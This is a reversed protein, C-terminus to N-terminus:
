CLIYSWFAANKFANTALSTVKNHSLDLNYLFTRGNRWFTTSVNAIGTFANARLDIWGGREFQDHPQSANGFAFPIRELLLEFSFDGEFGSDALLLAWTNSPLDCPVQGGLQAARGSCNVVLCSTRAWQYYPYPFDPDIESVNLPTSSSNCKQIEYQDCVAVSPCATGRATAALGALLLLYPLM